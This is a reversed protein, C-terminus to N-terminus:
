RGFGVKEDHNEQFIRVPGFEFGEIEVHKVLFEGGRNVFVVSRFVNFFCVFDLRGKVDSFIAWAGFGAYKYRIQRRFIIIPCRGPIGGPRGLLDWFRGPSSGLGGLARRPGGLVGLFGQSGRFRM